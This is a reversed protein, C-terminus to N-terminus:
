NLRLYESVDCVIFTFDHGGISVRTVGEPKLKSNLVLKERPSTRGEWEWLRFDTKKKSEPAGSIIQFANLSGDYEISRITDGGLTLRIANPQALTLNELSLRANPNRLRLPVVLAQESIDPDRMGLLLRGQVPDWALGEINITGKKGKKGACEKLEPVAGTLFQYLGGASEVQKVSQTQSDFSFRVLANTEEGKTGSQSGVVYFWSGDFTIGEPDEVSVGIKIPKIEGVQNGEQNLRMWLVEDARNDDVFLVGDTGPVSVVGSAEFAGGQFIKSSISAPDFEHNGEKKKKRKDKGDGIVAPKSEVSGHDYYILAQGILAALLACTLCLFSKYRMFLSRSQPLGM